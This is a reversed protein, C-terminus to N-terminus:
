TELSELTFEGAPGDWSFRLDRLIDRGLLGDVPTTVPFRQAAVVRYFNSLSPIYVALQFIDTPVGTHSASTAAVTGDSILGLYEIVHDRIATASSGTDIAFTFDACKGDSPNELRVSVCPRGGFDVQYGAKAM